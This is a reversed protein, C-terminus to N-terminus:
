LESLFNVVHWIWGSCLPQYTYDVYSIYMHRFGPCTKKRKVYSYYGQYLYSNLQEGEIDTYVTLCVSRELMQIAVWRPSPFILSNFEAQFNINPRIKNKISSNFLTFVIDPNLHIVIESCFINSAKKIMHKM